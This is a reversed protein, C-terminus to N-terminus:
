SRGGQAAADTQTVTGKTLNQFLDLAQQVAEQVGISSYTAGTIADLSEVTKQQGSFQALFGTDTAVKQGIGPSEDACNLIRINLVSGTHDLATMVQIKSKYGMAETIFIYGIIEGNQNATYITKEQNLATYSANPVLLEMSEQIAKQSQAAIADKTYYNTISLAGTVIICVLLLVLTPVLITKLKM